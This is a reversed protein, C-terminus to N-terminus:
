QPNGPSGGSDVFVRSPPNSGPGLREWPIGFQECLATAVGELGIPSYVEVYEDHSVFASVSPM